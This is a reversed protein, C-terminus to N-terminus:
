DELSRLTGVVAECIKRRKPPLTYSTIVVDCRLTNESTEEFAQRRKREKKRKRERKEERKRERERGLDYM